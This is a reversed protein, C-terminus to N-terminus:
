TTVIVLVISWSLSLQRIIFGFLRPLDSLCMARKPGLPLQAQHAAGNTRQIEARSRFRSRGVQTSFREPHQTTRKGDRLAHCGTEASERM